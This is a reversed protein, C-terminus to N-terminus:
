RRAEMIELAAWAVAEQARAAEVFAAGGACHRDSAGFPVIRHWISRAGEVSMSDSPLGVVVEYSVECRSVDSVMLIPGNPNAAISEDVFRAGHEKMVKLATAFAAGEGYATEGSV